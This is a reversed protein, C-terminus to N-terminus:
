PADPRYNATRAAFRANALTGGMSREALSNSHEMLYANLIAAKAEDPIAANVDEASALSVPQILAANSATAENEPAPGRLGGVFLVAAVVGAAASVPVLTRWSPARRAAAPVVRQPMAVVNSPLPKEQAIAAMVGGCFDSGTALMVGDRADRSAWIRSWEDTLEPDKGVADMLADWEANTAAADVAASLLQKSM